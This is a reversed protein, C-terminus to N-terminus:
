GTPIDIAVQVPLYVSTLQELFKFDAMSDHRLNLNEFLPCEERTKLKKLWYALLLM